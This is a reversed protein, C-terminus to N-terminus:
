IKRKKKQNSEDHGEEEGEEQTAGEEEKKGDDVAEEKVQGGRFGRVTEGVSEKLIATVEASMNGSDCIAKVNKIGHDYSHIYTNSPPLPFLRSSCLRCPYIIHNLLHAPPYHHLSEIIHHHM